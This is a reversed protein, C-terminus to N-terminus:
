QGREALATRCHNIMTIAESRMEVAREEPMNGDIAQVLAEACTWFASYFAWDPDANLPAISM